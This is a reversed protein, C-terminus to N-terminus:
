PQDKRARIEAAIDEAAQKADPIWLNPERKAYDGAIKACAEREKAAIQEALYGFESLWIRAAEDPKVNGSFSFKGDLMDLRFFEDRGESFLRFEFMPYASASVSGLVGVDNNDSM